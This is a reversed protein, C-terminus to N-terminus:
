RYNRRVTVHKKKAMVRKNNRKMAAQYDYAIADRDANAIAKVRENEEQEAKYRSCESHCGIYREECKHCAKFQIM